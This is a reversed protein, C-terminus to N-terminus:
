IFFVAFFMAFWSWMVVAAFLWLLSGAILCRFLLQMVTPTTTCCNYSWPSIMLLKKSIQQFKLCDNLSWKNLSFYSILAVFPLYTLRDCSFLPSATISLVRPVMWLDGQETSGYIQVTVSCTTMVQSARYHVTLLCPLLFHLM